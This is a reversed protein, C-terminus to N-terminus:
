NTEVGEELDSCQSIQIGVNVHPIMFGQHCCLTESLGHSNWHKRVTVEACAGQSLSHSYSSDCALSEVQPM